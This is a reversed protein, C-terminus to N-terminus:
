ADLLCSHSLTPHILPQPLPDVPSKNAQSMASLDSDLEPAVPITRGSASRITKRDLLRHRPCPARWLMCTQEKERVRKSVLRDQVPRWPLEREGDLVQELVAESIAIQKQIASALAMVACRPRGEEIADPFRGFPAHERPWSNHCTRGRRLQKAYFLNSIIIAPQLRM